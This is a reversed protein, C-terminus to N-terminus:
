RARLQPGVTQRARCIHHQCASYRGIATSSCVRHRHTSTNAHRSLLRSTWGSPSRALDGSQLLHLLFSTTTATRAYPLCHYQCIWRSSTFRECRKQRDSPRSLVACLTNCNEANELTGPHVTQHGRTRSSRKANSREGTLTPGTSGFPFTSADLKEEARPHPRASRATRTGSTSAAETTRLFRSPRLTTMWDRPKSSPSQSVDIPNYLSPDPFIVTPEEILQSDPRATVLSENLLM